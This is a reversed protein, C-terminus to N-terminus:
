RAQPLVLGVLELTQTAMDGSFVQAIDSPVHLLPCAPSLMKRPFATCINYHECTLDGESDIFDFITQFFLILLAKPACSSSFLFMSLLVFSSSWPPYCLYRSICAQLTQSRLFRRQIRRGNPLKVAILSMQCGCTLRRTLGQKGVEAEQGAPEPTLRSQASKKRDAM